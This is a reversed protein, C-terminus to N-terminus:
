IVGAFTLPRFTAHCCDYLPGLQFPLVSLWGITTLPAWLFRGRSLPVINKSM